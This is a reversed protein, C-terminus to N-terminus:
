QLRQQWRQWWLWPLWQQQWRRGKDREWRRCEWSHGNPAKGDMGQAWTSPAPKLPKPVPLVETDGPINYGEYLAAIGCARHSYPWLKPVHHGLATAKGHPCPPGSHHLPRPHHSHWPSLTRHCCPSRPSHGWWSSAAALVLSTGQAELHSSHGSAALTPRDERQTGM